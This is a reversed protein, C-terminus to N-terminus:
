QMREKIALLSKGEPHNTNISVAGAEIAGFLVMSAYAHMKKAASFYGVAYSVIACLALLLMVAYAEM